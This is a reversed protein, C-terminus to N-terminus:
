QAKAMEEAWAEQCRAEFALETTLEESSLHKFYGCHCSITGEIVNVDAHMHDCCIEDEFADHDEYEDEDWM